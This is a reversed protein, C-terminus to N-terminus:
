ITDKGRPAVKQNIGADNEPIEPKLPVHPTKCKIFHAINHIRLGVFKLEGTFTVLRFSLGEMEKEKM